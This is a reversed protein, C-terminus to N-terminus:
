NRGCERFRKVWRYVSAPRAKIQRIIEPTKTGALFLEYARRFQELNDGYAAKHSVTVVRTSRYYPVGNDDFVLEKPSSNENGEISTGESGDSGESGEAQDAQDAQDAQAVQVSKPYIGAMELIGAIYGAPNDTKQALEVWARVQHTYKPLQARKEEIVTDVWLPLQLIKQKKKM